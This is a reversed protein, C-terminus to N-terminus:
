SRELDRNKVSRKGIPEIDSKVVAFEKVTHGLREFADAVDCGINFAVDESGNDMFSYTVKYAVIGDKTDDYTKATVGVIVNSADKRQDAIISILEKIAEFELADAAELTPITNTELNFIYEANHHVSMKNGNM